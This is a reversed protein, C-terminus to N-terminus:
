MEGPPVGPMRQPKETISSKADKGHQLLVLEVGEGQLKVMGFPVESSVWIDAKEADSGVRLHMANFTGAPVTVSEREVLEANECASAADQAPNEAGRGQMMALMQDSVIMAPQDGMKVVAQQIDSQEYPYSPILLQMIMAGMPSEMRTEYWYHEKGAAEETGVVAFRSTAKGQDSAIEYEAWQGVVLQRFENCVEELDQALLSSGAFTLMAAATLISRM